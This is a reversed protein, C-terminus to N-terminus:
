TTELAINGVFITRDKRERIQFASLDAEDQKM